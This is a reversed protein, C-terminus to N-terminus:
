KSYFDPYIKKVADQANLAEISNEINKVLIITDGCKVGNHTRWTGVEQSGPIHYATLSNEPWGNIIYVPISYKWTCADMWADDSRPCYKNRLSVIEDSLTEIPFTNPPFCCLGSYLHNRLSRRETKKVSIRKLNVFNETKGFYCCPCKQQKANNYLESIYDEPYYLDDDVMIVYDNQHQKFVEWRKHAYTNGPVFRIEDVWKKDMCEKLHEPIVGQYEDYSLWLITKDPKLTQKQLHEIMKVFTMDRQRWTTTSVIIKDKGM